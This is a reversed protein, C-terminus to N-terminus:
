QVRQAVVVDRDLYQGPGSPRSPDYSQFRGGCTILTIWEEEAPRDKPWILDGMPITAEPYRHVAIVRYRYTPGDKMHVVIEDDAALLSLKNFPGIIDPWYDVHGSFVANGGFGPKAYQDYWGADHPDSPTALQNTGPVFNIAEVPADVKFRPIELSALAGDFPAPTPTPTAADTPTPSPSPSEPAPTRLDFEQITASQAAPRAGGGSRTFGVVLLAVGAVFSLVALVRLIKM